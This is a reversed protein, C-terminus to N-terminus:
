SLVSSFLPLILGYRYYHESVPDRLVAFHNISWLKNLILIKPRFQNVLCVGKYEYIPAAQTPNIFLFERKPWVPMVTTRFESEYAADIVANFDLEWEAGFAVMCMKKMVSDTGGAFFDNMATNDYRNGFDTISSSLGEYLGESGASITKVINEGEEKYPDFLKKEGIPSCGTRLTMFLDNAFDCVYQSFLMKCSESSYDGTYKTSEICDRISILINRLLQLRKYLGTLCATFFASTHQGKPDIEMLRYKFIMNDQGFNASQDRGKFYMDPHYEKEVKIANEEKPTEEGEAYIYGTQSYRYDWKYDVDKPSVYKSYDIATPNETWCCCTFPDNDPDDPDYSEIYKDLEDHSVGYTVGMDEGYKSGAINKACESKKILGM